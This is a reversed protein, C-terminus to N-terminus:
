VIASADPVKHLREGDPLASVMSLLERQVGVFDIFGFCAFLAGVILGFCIDDVHHKNDVYRSMAM